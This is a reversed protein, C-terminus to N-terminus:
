KALIIKKVMEFDEPYNVNLFLEDEKIAVTRFQFSAYFDQLKRMGQLFLTEWKAALTNKIIVPMPQLHKNRFCLIEDHKNSFQKMLKQMAAATFLPMDCSLVVINEKSFKLANNIASAPGQNPLTDSCIPYNWKKYITENALICIPINCQNLVDFSYEILSKDDIELFAKNKGMRSSKGGALVFGQM